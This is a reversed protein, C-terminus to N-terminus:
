PKDALFVFFSSFTLAHIGKHKRGEKTIRHFATLIHGVTLRSNERKNKGHKHHQLDSFEYLRFYPLVLSFAKVLKRIQLLPLCAFVFSLFTGCFSSKIFSFTIYTSNTYKKLYCAYCTYPCMRLNLLKMKHPIISRFIQLSCFRQAVAKAPWRAAIKNM